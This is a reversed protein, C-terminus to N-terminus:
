ASPYVLRAQKGAKLSRVADSDHKGSVDTSTGTKGTSVFCESSSIEHGERYSREQSAQRGKEGGESEHSEEAYPKGSKNHSILRGEHSRVVPM